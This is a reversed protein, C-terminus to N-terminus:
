FWNDSLTNFASTFSPWASTPWVAPHIGRSLDRAGCKEGRSKLGTTRVGAGLPHHSMITRQKRNNVQWRSNLMSFRGSQTDETPKWETHLTLGKLTGSSPLFSFHFSCGYLFFKWCFLRPVNSLPLLCFCSADKNCGTSPPSPPRGSSRHTPAWSRSFSPEPVVQRVLNLYSFHESKVKRSLFGPYKPSLSSSWDLVHRYPM